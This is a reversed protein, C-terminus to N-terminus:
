AMVERRTEQEPLDYCAASLQLLMDVKELAKKKHRCITSVSYFCGSPAKTEALAEITMREGYLGEILWREDRELGAMLADFRDIKKHTEFLARRLYRIRLRIEAAYDNLDDTYHLAIRDTRGGHEGGADTPAQKLSLMEIIGDEDGIDRYCQELMAKLMGYNTLNQRHERLFDDAQM